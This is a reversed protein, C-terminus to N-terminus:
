VPFSKELLKLTVMLTLLFPAKSIKINGHCSNTAHFLICVAAVFM